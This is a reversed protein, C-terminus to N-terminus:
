QGTGSSIIPGVLEWQEGKLRMMQMQQIPYLDTPTTNAVV